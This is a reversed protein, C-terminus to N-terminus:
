WLDIACGLVGECIRPSTCASPRYRNHEGFSSTCLADGWVSLRARYVVRQASIAVFRRLITSADVTTPYANLSYLKRKFVLSGTMSRSTHRGAASSAMFVRSTIDKVAVSILLSLSDLSFVNQLWCVSFFLCFLAMLGFSSSSIENNSLHRVGWCNSSSFLDKWFNMTSAEIESGVYFPYHVSINGERKKHIGHVISSVLSPLGTDAELSFSQCLFPRVGGKWESDM